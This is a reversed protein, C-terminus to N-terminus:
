LGEHGNVGGQELDQHAGFALDGHRGHVLARPEPTLFAMAHIRDSVVNGDHEHVFRGDLVSRLAATRGLRGTRM